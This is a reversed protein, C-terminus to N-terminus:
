TGSGECTQGSFMGSANWVWWVGNAILIGIGEGQRVGGYLTDDLIIYLVYLVSATGYACRAFPFIEFTRIRRRVSIVALGLPLLSARGNSLMHSPYTARHTGM